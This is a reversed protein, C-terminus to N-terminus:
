GADRAKYRMLAFKAVYLVALTGIMDGVFMAGVDQWAQQTIARWSYLVQHLASSIMAFCVALSLLTAASLHQLGQSLGLKTALLKYVLYPAFGAICGAWLATTTDTSFDGLLGLALSALAIGLAGPLGMGLVLLLKIGAPLFIWSVGVSHNLLAFLWGNLTFSGIFIVAACGTLLGFQGLTSNRPTAFLM